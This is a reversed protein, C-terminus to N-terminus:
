NEEEKLRQWKQELASIDTRYEESSGKVKFNVEVATEAPDFVNVLDSNFIAWLHLYLQESERAQQGEHTSSSYNNRLFELIDEEDMGEDFIGKEEMDDLLQNSKRASDLIRELMKEDELWASPDISYIINDDSDFEKKILNDNRLEKLYRSLTAESVDVVELLENWTKPSDSISEILKRLNDEKKSV